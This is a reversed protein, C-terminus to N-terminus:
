YQPLVSNVNATFHILLTLMFQPIVRSAGRKEVSFFRLLLFLFLFFHFSFFLFSFPPFIGCKSAHEYVYVERRGAGTEATRVHQTLLIKQKRPILRLKQNRAKRMFSIRQRIGDDEDQPLLGIAVNSISLRIVNTHADSELGLDQQNYQYTHDDIHNYQYTHDDTHNYQYTHDDTCVETVMSYSSHCHNSRHPLPDVAPIYGGQRLHQQQQQQQQQQLWECPVAAVSRSHFTRTETDASRPTTGISFFTPSPDSLVPIFRNVDIAKYVYSSGAEAENLNEEEFNKLIFQKSKPEPALSAKVLVPADSPVTYYVDDYQASNSSPVTGKDHVSASRNHRSRDAINRNTYVRESNDPFM